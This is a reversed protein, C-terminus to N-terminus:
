ILKELQQSILSDARVWLIKELEIVEKYAVENEVHARDQEPLPLFNKMGSRMIKIKELVNLESLNNMRSILYIFRDIDLILAEYEEWFLRSNLYVRSKVRVTFRNTFLIARKKEFEDDIPNGFNKRKRYGTIKSLVENLDAAVEDVFAVAM